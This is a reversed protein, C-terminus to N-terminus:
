SPSNIAILLSYGFFIFINSFGKLEPYKKTIYESLQNVVGSGWESTSLKYYLYEGVNWYLDILATNTIHIINNRSCKILSIIEDFQKVLQQSLSANEKNKM